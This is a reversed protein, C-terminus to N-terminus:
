AQQLGRKLHKHLSTRIRVKDFRNETTYWYEVMLNLVDAWEHDHEWLLSGDGSALDAALMRRVQVDAGRNRLSLLGSAEIIFARATMKTIEERKNATKAM